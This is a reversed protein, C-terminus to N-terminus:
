NESNDIFKRHFLLERFLIHFLIQISYFMLTQHLIVVFILLLFKLSSIILLITINLKMIIKIIIYSITYNTMSM